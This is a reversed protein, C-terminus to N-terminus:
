ASEDKLEARAQQFRARGFKRNGLPPAEGPTPAPAAPPVLADVEGAIGLYHAGLQENQEDGSDQLALGRAKLSLSLVNIATVVSPTPPAAPGPTASAAAIAILDDIENLLDGVIETPSENWCYGACHRYIAEMLARGINAMDAISHQPDPEFDLGPMMADAAGAGGTFTLLRAVPGTSAKLHWLFAAYNMIDLPDGKAMHVAMSEQLGPINRPDKWHNSYGHKVEAARLKDAMAYACRVVLDATDPHLAAPLGLPFIKLEM